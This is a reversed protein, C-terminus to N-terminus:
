AGAEAAVRRVYAVVESPHQALLDPGAVQVREADLSGWAAGIAHCGAAKAAGVDAPTDGVYAIAGPEDLCLREMAVFIPEPDPKHRECDDSGVVTAFRGLLGTQTLEGTAGWSVKSTVVALQLGDAQLADLTETVGPSPEPAFDLAYYRERYGEAFRRWDDGLLGRALEELTHGNHERWLALPDPRTGLCDEYTAAIAEMRGPLTNLLTDDLDWFVARM